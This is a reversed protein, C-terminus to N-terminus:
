PMIRRSSWNSTPKKSKLTRLSQFWRVVITVELNAAAMSLFTKQRKSAPPAAVWVQAQTALHVILNAVENCLQQPCAAEDATAFNWKNDIRKVGWGAHQHSNDCTKALTDLVGTSVYWSSWKNRSSGWMCQQFAVEDLLGEDILERFFPIEWLYSRTSNEVSIVVRRKVCERM